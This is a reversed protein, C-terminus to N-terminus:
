TFLKEMIRQVKLRMCGGTIKLQPEFVEGTVGCDIEARCRVSLRAGEKTATKGTKSERKVHKEYL